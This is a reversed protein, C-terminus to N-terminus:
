GKKRKKRLELRRFLEMIEKECGEVPLGLSKSFTLLRRFSGESVDLDRESALCEEEGAWVFQHLQPEQYPRNIVKKIPMCKVTIAKAEKRKRKKEGSITHNKNQLKFYSKNQLRKGSIINYTMM